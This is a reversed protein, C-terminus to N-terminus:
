KEITSSQTILPEFFIPPELTGDDADLAILPEDPLVRVRRAREWREAEENQDINRLADIFDSALALIAGPVTLHVNPAGDKEITKRWVRDSTIDIVAGGYKARREPKMNEFVGRTPDLGLTFQHLSPEEFQTM